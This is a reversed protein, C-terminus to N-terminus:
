TASVIFARMWTSSAAVPSHPLETVEASTAAWSRRSRARLEAAVMTRTAADYQFVATLWSAQTMTITSLPSRLEHAGSGTPEM